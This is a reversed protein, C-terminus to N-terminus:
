GSRNAVDAATISATVQSSKVFTTTRANGNWNVVAGSVFGSGNVTLTFTAAGPAKQGPVLPANIHPLPNQALAVSACLTWVMMAALTLTLWNALRRAAVKGGSVTTTLQQCINM